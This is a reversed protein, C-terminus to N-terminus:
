GGHKFTPVTMKMFDPGLTKLWDVSKKGAPATIKEADFIMMNDLVMHDFGDAKKTV